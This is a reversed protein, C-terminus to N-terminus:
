PTVIFQQSAERFVLTSESFYGGALNADYDVNGLVTALGPDVNAPYSFENDSLILGFVYGNYEIPVCGSITLGLTDGVTYGHPEATVVHVRNKSWSFSEVQVGTPSGILPLLFILSGDLGSLEVYYRQGFLNWIVRASYVQGDLTPQFQFPATSSPIFNFIM